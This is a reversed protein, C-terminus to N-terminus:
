YLFRQSISRSVPASRCSVLRVGSKSTRSKSMEGSPRSTTRSRTCSCESTSNSSRGWGYGPWLGAARNACEWYRGARTKPNSACAQIRRTVGVRCLTYARGSAWRTQTFGSSQDPLAIARLPSRIIGVNGNGERFNRVAPKGWYPKLAPIDSLAKENSADRADTPKGGGKTSGAERTPDGNQAPPRHASTCRRELPNLREEGPARAGSRTRRDREM